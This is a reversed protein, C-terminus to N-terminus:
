KEGPTKIMCDYQYALRRLKASFSDGPMADIIRYTDADLRVTKTIDKAPLRMFFGTKESYGYRQYKM